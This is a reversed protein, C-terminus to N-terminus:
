ASAHLRSVRESPESCGPAPAARWMHRSRQLRGPAQPLSSCLAQSYRSYAAHIAALPMVLSAANWVPSCVSCRKIASCCAAAARALVVAAPGGGAASGESDAAQGGATALMAGATASARKAAASAAAAAATEKALLAAPCSAAASAASAAATLWGAVAGDTALWSHNRAAAVHRLAHSARSAARCALGSAAATRSASTATCAARRRLCWRRPRRSHLDINAAGHQPLGSAPALPPLVGGM